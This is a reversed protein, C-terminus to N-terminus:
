IGTCCKRYMLFIDFRFILYYIFYQPSILFAVIAFLVRWAMSYGLEKNTNYSLIAGPVGFFILIAIVIWWNTPKECESVCLMTNDSSDSNEMTEKKLSKELKRAKSSLIGFLTNNQFFEM